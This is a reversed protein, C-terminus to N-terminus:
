PRKEKGALSAIMAAAQDKPVLKFTRADPFDVIAIAKGDVIKFGKLEPM